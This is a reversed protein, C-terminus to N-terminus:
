RQWIPFSSRFRVIVDSENVSVRTSYKSHGGLHTSCFDTIVEAHKSMYPLLEELYSHVKGNLRGDLSRRGEQSRLANLVIFLKRINAYLCCCLVATAPMAVRTLLWQFYFHVHMQFVTRLWLERLSYFKSMLSRKNPQFITSWHSPWSDGKLTTGVWQPFNKRRM